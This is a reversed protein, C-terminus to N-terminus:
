SDVFNGIVQLCGGIFILVVGSRSLWINWRLKRIAAPTANRVHLASEGRLFAERDSFDIQGLFYWAIGSGITALCVGASNLVLSLKM